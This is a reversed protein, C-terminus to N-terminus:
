GHAIANREIDLVQVVSREVLIPGRFAAPQEFAEGAGAIKGLARWDAGGGLQVLPHAASLEGYDDLDGRAEAAIKFPQMRGLDAEPDVCGHGEPALGRFPVDGAQGQSVYLIEQEFAKARVGWGVDVETADVDFIAEAVVLAELADEGHDRAHDHYYEN